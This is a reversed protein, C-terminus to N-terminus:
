IKILLVFKYKLVKLNSNVKASHRKRVCPFYTRQRTGCFLCEAFPNMATLFFVCPLSDRQWISVFPCVVFSRKALHKEKDRTKQTASPLYTRQQTSIFYVAFAGACSFLQNEQCISWPRDPVVHYLGCARCAVSRKNQQKSKKKICINAHM